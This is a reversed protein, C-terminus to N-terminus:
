QRKVLLKEVWGEGKETTVRYFSDREEGMYIVADNKGLVTLTSSKAPANYVKVGSIKGVLVDGSQIANSATTGAIAAPAAAASGPVDDAVRKFDAYNRDFVGENFGSMTKERFVILPVGRGGLRSYEAKYGPNTEIDREVFGINKRQMYAAAQKCYGCWATRYLIVKGEVNAPASGPLVQGQTVEAVSKIADIFTSAATGQPILKLLDTLSQANSLSPTAGVLLTCCVTILGTKLRM